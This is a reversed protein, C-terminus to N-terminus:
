RGEGPGRPRRADPQADPGLRRALWRAFGEREDRRGLPCFDLFRLQDLTWEM